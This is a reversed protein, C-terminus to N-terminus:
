CGTAAQPSVTIVPMSNAATPATYTVQCQAPNTAGNRRFTAVNGSVTRTFGQAQDQLTLHISAATPYGFALAINQGQMNVVNGTSGSALWMSHALTAASRLGGALGQLSAERARSELATFRPLAFAALIGLITIVVVLEILTFGRLKQPSM